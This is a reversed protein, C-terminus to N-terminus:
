AVVCMEEAGCAAAGSRKERLLVCSRLVVRM